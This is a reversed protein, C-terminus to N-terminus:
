DLDYVSTIMWVDFWDAVKVPIGFAKVSYGKYEEIFANHLVRPLYLRLDKHGTEKLHNIKILIEWIELYRPRKCIAKM